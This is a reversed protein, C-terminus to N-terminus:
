PRIRFENLLLDDMIVMNPNQSSDVKFSDNLEFPISISLSLNLLFEREMDDYLFSEIDHSFVKNFLNKFGDKEKVGNYIHLLSEYEVAISRLNEIAKLWSSLIKSDVTGYLSRFELTGYTSLPAINLSAYKLENKPLHNLSRGNNKFVSVLLPLFGDADKLRLCFRNGIRSPTSFHMFCGELLYYLYILNLIHTVEMDSVNLHVHTSTRFSFVPKIRYQQLLASLHELKNITKSHNEPYNIVFECSDGRLSNDKEYSWHKDPEKLPLGKGEMEVEVGFVAGKYVKIHEVISYLKM